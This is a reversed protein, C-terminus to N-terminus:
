KGHGSDISNEHTVSIQEAAQRLLGFDTELSLSTEDGVRMEADKTVGISAIDEPSLLKKGLFKLRKSLGKYHHGTQKDRHEVEYRYICGLLLAFDAAFEPHTRLVLVQLNGGDMKAHIGYLYPITSNVLFKAKAPHSTIYDIITTHVSVLNALFLNHDAESRQLALKALISMFNGMTEDLDRGDGAGIFPGQGESAIAAAVVSEWIRFFQHKLANKLRNPILEEKNWCGLLLRGHRFNLLPDVEHAFNLLSKGLCRGAERTFDMSEILADTRIRIHLELLHKTFMLTTKVDLDGRELLRMLLLKTKKDREVDPILGLRISPRGLDQLIGPFELTTMRVSQQVDQFCHYLAVATSKDHAFQDLVRPVLEAAVIKNVQESDVRGVQTDFYAWRIRTPWSRNQLLRYIFSTMRLFEKSQPSKYPCPSGSSFALWLQVSPLVTTTALFLAALVIMAIVPAAVELDLSILFDIIGAFFFALALHFLVPLGTFVEPVHWAELGQLRLTRRAYAEKPSLESSYRQYERLWQLAVTGVLVVTLSTILSLFWFINVRISSPSPAFARCPSSATTTNTGSNQKAIERLLLIITDNPDPQLSKYSEIVFATVVASFLGAFILLNQVEDKWAECKTNDQDWVRDLCVKWPDAMPRIPYQYEEHCTWTEPQATAISEESLNSNLRPMEAESTPNDM